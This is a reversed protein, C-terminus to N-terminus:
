MFTFVELYVSKMQGHKWVQKSPPESGMQLGNSSARLAKHHAKHDDIKDTNM